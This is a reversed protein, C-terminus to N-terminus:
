YFFEFQFKYTNDIKGSKLGTLGRNKFRLHQYELSMIVNKTVVNQYALYIANVNDTGHTFASYPQNPYSVGMTDFGGVPVAGADISRYSIMWADTHPKNRDVIPVALYYVNPGVGNTLEISWGKPHKGLRGAYDPNMNRVNSLIYDGFLRFKGFKYHLGIDLGDARNFVLDTANSNGAINLNGMGAGRATREIDAWYYGLSAGFDKSFNHGIEFTGLTQTNSTSADGDQSVDGVYAKLTTNDGINKQLLLGDVSDPKGILGHGISDLQSRGVRIKDLGFTDKCQIYGLDMRVKYTRSNAGEGFKQDMNLRGLFNIKPNIDGQWTLRQRFDFKDGGKLKEGVQPSNGFYRIRTEGSLWSNTRKEVKEMRKGLRNLEGAFEASLKDILEKDSDSAEMYHDIAKAVVMSMEYRTIQRDGKFEGDPYGTVVGSDVLKQVSEYAWHDKPVDKFSEEPSNAFSTGMCGMLMAGTLAAAWKKM